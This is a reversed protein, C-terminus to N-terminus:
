LYYEKEETVGLSFSSDRTVTATSNAKAERPEQDDLDVDDGEDDILASAM